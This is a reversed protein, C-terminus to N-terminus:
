VPLVCLPRPSYLLRTFLTCVCQSAGLTCPSSVARSWGDMKDWPVGLQACYIHCSLCDKLTQIQNWSQHWNIGRTWQGQVGVGGGSVQLSNRSTRAVKGLHGRWKKSWCSEGLLRASDRYRRTGKSFNRCLPFSSALFPHLFAWPPDCFTERSGHLKSWDWKLCCLVNPVCYSM